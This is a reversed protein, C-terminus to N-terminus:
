PCPRRVDAVDDLDPRAVRAREDSEDVGRRGARARIEVQEPVVECATSSSRQTSETAYAPGPEEESSRGAPAVTWGRSSNTSSRWASSVLSTFTSAIRSSTKAAIASNTETSTMALVNEIRKAWRARSKASSRQTPAVRRWTAASPGPRPARARRRTTLARAAPRCRGRSGGRRARSTRAGWRCCPSDRGGRQPPVGAGEDDSTTTVTTAAQSGVRRTTRTLGSAASRGSSEVLTRVPAPRSRTASPSSATAAPAARSARDILALSTTAISSPPM